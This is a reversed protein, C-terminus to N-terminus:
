SRSTPISITSENRVSATLSTSSRSGRSPRASEVLRHRFTWAPLHSIPLDKILIIDDFAALTTSPCSPMQDSLIVHFTADPHWKKVTHALVAAKPLYNAAISTFVHM